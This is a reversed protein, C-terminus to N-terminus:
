CNCSIRILKDILLILINNKGNIPDTDAKFNRVNVYTKILDNFKLLKPDNVSDGFIFFKDVINTGTM